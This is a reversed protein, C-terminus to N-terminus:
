IMSYKIQIYQIIINRDQRQTQGGQHPQVHGVVHQVVEVGVGECGRGAQLGDVECVVRQGGESTLFPGNLQLKISQDM